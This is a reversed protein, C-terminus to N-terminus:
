GTACKLDSKTAFYSLDLEFNIKSRSDGDPELNYTM